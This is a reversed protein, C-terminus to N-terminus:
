RTTFQPHPFAALLRKRRRVAGERSRVTQFMGLLARRRAAMWAGQDAAADVPQWARPDPPEAPADDRTRPWWGCALAELNALTWLACDSGHSSQRHCPGHVVRWPGGGGDDGRLRRAVNRPLRDEGAPSSPAPGDAGVASDYLAVLRARPLVLLLRWHDADHAPLLAVPARDVAAAAGGAWWDPLRNAPDHLAAYVAAPCVRCARPLVDWGRRLLTVYGDVVCDSLYAGPVFERAACHGLTERIPDVALTAALLARGDPSLWSGNDDDDDDARVPDDPGRRRDRPVVVRDAAAVATGEDDDGGSWLGGM